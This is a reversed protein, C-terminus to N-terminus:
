CVFLIIDNLYLMEFTILIYKSCCHDLYLDKLFVVNLILCLLRVVLRFLTNNGIAYIAILGTM